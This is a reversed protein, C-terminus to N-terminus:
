QGERLAATIMAAFEEITVPRGDCILCMGLGDVYRYPLTKDPLIKIMTDAEHRVKNQAEVTSLYSKVAERTFEAASWGRVEMVAMVRKADEGEVYGLRLKNEKM